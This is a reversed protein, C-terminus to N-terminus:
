KNKNAKNSVPDPKSCPVQLLFYFGLQKKLLGSGGDRFYKLEGLLYICSPKTRLEWGKGRQLPIKKHDELRQVLAWLPIKLTYSLFVSPFCYPWPRM